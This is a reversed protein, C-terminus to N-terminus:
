LSNNKLASALELAYIRRTFVLLFYTFFVLPIISIFFLANQQKITKSIYEQSKKDSFSKCLIQITEAKLGTENAFHDKDFKKDECDKITLSWNRWHMETISINPFYNSSYNKGVWIWPEADKVKILAASKEAITISAFFLYINILIIILVSATVKYTPIKAELKSINFWGKARSVKAIDIHNNNVWAIFKKIENKNKAKVNFLMNFHEVDNKEIWFSNIKKDSFSSKGLTFQWIRNTISYASGARQAIYFFTTLLIFICFVSNILTDYKVILAAVSEM